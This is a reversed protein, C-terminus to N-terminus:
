RGMAARSIIESLEAAQADNFRGVLRANLPPRKPGHLDLRAGTSHPHVPTGAFQVAQYVDGTRPDIINVQYFHLTSGDGAGYAFLTAASGPATRLKRPDGDGNAAFRNGLVYGGGALTEGLVPGYTSAFAAHASQDTFRTGALSTSQHALVDLYAGLRRAVARAETMNQALDATRLEDDISATPGVDAPAEDDVPGACGAQAMALVLALTTLAIQKM